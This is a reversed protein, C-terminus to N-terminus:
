EEVYGEEDIVEFVYGNPDRFFFREFPTPREPAILEAGQEVLRAQLEPFEDRKRFLAVHRGFEAEFPSVDFEDVRLLHLQQDAAIRLWAADRNINDPTHIPRWGFVAAFFQCSAIVDRTALTIHAITM